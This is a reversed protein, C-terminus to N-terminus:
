TVYLKVSFLFNIHISNGAKGEVNRDLINVCDHRGCTWLVDRLIFLTSTDEHSRWEMLMLFGPPERQISARIEFNDIQQRSFGLLEALHIWDGTRM